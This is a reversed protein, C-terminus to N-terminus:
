RRKNEEAALLEQDYYWFSVAYRGGGVAVRPNVPLVAHPCRVDSWFVVLRNGLPEVDVSYRYLNFKFAFSQFRTKV